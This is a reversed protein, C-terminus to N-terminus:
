PRPRNAIAPAPRCSRRWALSNREQYPRLIETMFREHAPSGPVIERRSDVQCRARVAAVAAPEDDVGLFLWFAPDKCHVGLWRVADPGDAPAQGPEGPAGSIARASAPWSRPAAAVPQRVPAAAPASSVPQLGYAPISGPVDKAPFLIADHGFFLQTAAVHDGIPVELVLATTQRSPIHRVTSVRARVSAEHSSEQILQSSPLPGGARAKAADALDDLAIVGYAQGQLGAPARMAFADRGHFLRTAAIHHEDPIEIQIASVERSTIARVGTAQGLAAFVGEAAVDTRGPSGASAQADASASARLRAPTNM